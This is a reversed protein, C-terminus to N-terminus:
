SVNITFKGIIIYVLVNFLDDSTIIESKLLNHIIKLCITQVVFKNPNMNMFICLSSFFTINKRLLEIAATYHCIYTSIINLAEVKM